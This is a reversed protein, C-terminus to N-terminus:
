FIFSGQRLIYLESKVSSHIIEADVIELKSMNLVGMYAYVFIDKNKINTFVHVCIGLLTQLLSLIMKLKRSSKVIFM